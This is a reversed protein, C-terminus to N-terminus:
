RAAWPLSEILLALVLAGSLCFPFALGADRDQRIGIVVLHVLLALSACSLTVLPIGLLVATGSTM